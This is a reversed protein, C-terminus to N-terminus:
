LTFIKMTYQVKVRCMPCKDLVKCGDCLCLHGCPVCAFVASDDMCVVCEDAEKEEPKQAPAQAKAKQLRKLEKKLKKSRKKCEESDLTAQRKLQEYERIGLLYEQEKLMHAHTLEKKREEFKRDLELKDHLLDQRCTDKMAEAEALKHRVTNEGDRIHQERITLSEEKAEARMLSQYCKVWDENLRASQQHIFARERELEKAATLLAQLASADEGQKATVLLPEGKMRGCQVDQEFHVQPQFQSHPKEDWDERIPKEYVLYDPILARALDYLRNYEKAFEEASESWKICYGHRSVELSKSPICAWHSRLVKPNKKEVFGKATLSLARCVCNAIMGTQVAPYRTSCESRQQCLLTAWEKQEEESVYKFPLNNSSELFSGPRYHAQPVYDSTWAQNWKEVFALDLFGQKAVLKGDSGLILYNDDLWVNVEPPLEGYQERFLRHILWAASTNAFADRLPQIKAKSLFVFPPCLGEHLLVEATDKGSANWDPPLSMYTTYHDFASLLKLNECSYKGNYLRVQRDGFEFCDVVAFADTDGYKAVYLKQLTEQCCRVWLARNTVAEQTDCERSIVHLYVWDKLEDFNVLRFPNGQDPADM